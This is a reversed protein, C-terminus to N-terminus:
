RWAWRQATGRPHCRYPGADPGADDGGEGEQERGVTDPVPSAGPVTLSTSSQRKGRKEEGGTEEGMGQENDQDSGQPRVQRGTGVAARPGPYPMRDIRTSPLSTNATYLAVLSARRRATASFWGKRISAM